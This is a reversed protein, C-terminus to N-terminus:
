GGPQTLGFRDGAQVADPLHLLLVIDVAHVRHNLQAQLKVCVVLHERIRARQRRSRPLHAFAAITAAFHDRHLDHGAGAITIVRLDEKLMLAERVCEAPILGGFEPEGRLLLAPAHVARLHPRWDPRWAIGSSGWLQSTAQLKSAAWADYEDERWGPNSVRKSAFLEGASQTQCARLRDFYAFRGADAEEVNQPITSAPMLPPDLLFLKTVRQPAAAAIALSNRGGFSHGMLAFTAANEADALALVDTIYDQQSYGHEPADSEGHGRQDIALVRFGDDALADATRGWCAASDSVGHLAILVPGDGSARYRLRVGANTLARAHWARM